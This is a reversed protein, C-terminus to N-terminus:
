PAKEFYRVGETKTRRRFVKDGCTAYLVKLDPAGFAVNSLSGPQPKLIVGSIRGTPDFMQVGSRTAVYVRGAKDVTMGDSGPRTAGGSPLRLPQFYKEGYKLRGDKEVRFAWLHPADSDTVVLTGEDPTLIVGNPRFGEAVIQKERRDPSVYWVQQHPPDTFYFGAARRWWWTTRTRM